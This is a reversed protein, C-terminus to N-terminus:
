KKLALKSAESSATGLVTVAPQNGSLATHVSQDLMNRIEPYNNIKFGHTVAVPQVSYPEIISKWQQMNVKRSNSKELATKTLPLFGTNEYWITSQTPQALWSLFEVTGKDSEQGHGKTAWLSAGGVFPLGPTQTVEPYYPIGSVGFDLGMKSKFWGMNSSSSLLIACEGQAFRSTAVSNFEPNVMLESKVWTVMLSLHRIYMTNFKFAQGGKVTNVYPQNNVAALNELNISVSQDSTIPCQRSGNNAAEVVQDQLAMWSRNPTAPSINAKKFSDINYYMVPVDLMFPFAQLNGKSDRAAGNKTPLFWDIKIPHKQMLAHLPVLYKRKAVMDPIYAEDLQVLQPRDTDKAVKVLAADIDSSSKFSKLRVSYDASSRNFQGVLSELQQTNHPNLSHWVNITTAALASFSPLLLAAGVVSAGIYLKSKM